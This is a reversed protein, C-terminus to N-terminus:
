TNWGQHRFAGPVVAGVMFLIILLKTPKPLWEHSIKKLATCTYYLKPVGVSFHLKLKPVHVKFEGSNTECPSTSLSPATSDRVIVSRPTGLHQLSMLSQSWNSIIMLTLSSTHIVTPWLVMSITFHGRPISFNILPYTVNYAILVYQWVYYVFVDVSQVLSCM